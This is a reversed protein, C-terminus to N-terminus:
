LDFSERRPFQKRFVPSYDLSDSSDQTAPPGRLDDPDGTSRRVMEAREVATMRPLSANGQLVGSGARRTHAAVPPVNQAIRGEPHANFPMDSTENREM